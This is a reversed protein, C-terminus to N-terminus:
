KKFNILQFLLEARAWDDENDIDVVRWNPIKFGKGSHMKKNEKWSASTGWYFQGADIYTKPLDQTRTNKFNDQILNLNNKEFYFARLNSKPLENATFVCGKFKAKKM